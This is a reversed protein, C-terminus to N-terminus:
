ISSAPHQYNVIPDEATGMDEKHNAKVAQLFKQTKKGLTDLKNILSIYVQEDKLSGTEYLTELHDRTEDCSSLAFVLFRLFEKKYRRRGYGEVINSRISKSSRRIQSGTEYLEFQPLGLSIKHVEISVEKSLKWIELNKYSM